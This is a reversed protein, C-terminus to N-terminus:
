EQVAKIVQMQKRLLLITFCFVDKILIIEVGVICKSGFNSNQPINQM